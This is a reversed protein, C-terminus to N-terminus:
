IQAIGNHTRLWEDVRKEASKADRVIMYTSNRSGMSTIERQYERMKRVADIFMSFEELLVDKESEQLDSKTFEMPACERYFVSLEGTSEKTRHESTFVAGGAVMAFLRECRAPIPRYRDCAEEYAKCLGLVPRYMTCEECIVGRGKKQFNDRHLIM